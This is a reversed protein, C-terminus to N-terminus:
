FLSLKSSENRFDQRAKDIRQRAIAVYDANQMLQVARENKEIGIFHRGELVAAVLFSGAGCANDLVIQGPETYTRILYRGLEVPKQTPHFAHQGTTPTKCYFWDAIEEERFLIDVPYRDGKVNRKRKPPFDGYNSSRKGKNSGKDYPKGKEMQPHYVPRGEYFICVDEHKRLPQKRANLFNGPKMKIWIIKYQFLRYNSSIVRATFAGQGFLAIVGNPKVVQRYQLWLAELDIATDWGNQTM